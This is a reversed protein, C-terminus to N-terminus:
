FNLYQNIFYSKLKKEILYGSNIFDIKPKYFDEKKKNNYENM